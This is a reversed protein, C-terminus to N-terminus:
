KSWTYYTVVVQVSRIDFDAYASYRDAVELDAELRHHWLYTTTSSGRALSYTRATGPKVTVDLDKQNDTDGAEQLLSGSVFSRVNSQGYTELTIAGYRARAPLTFQYALTVVRPNCGPGNLDVYLGRAYSSLSSSIVPCGDLSNRANSYDAGDRTITMTHATLKKGSVHVTSLPGRRTNGVSDTVSFRWHYKGPSVIHGSRNTGNWTLWARGGPWRRSAIRRVLNGSTNTISLTLTGASNMRTKPTFTDRYKDPWPMFTTNNGVTATMTPPTTDVVVAHTSSGSVVAGNRAGTTAATIRYGGDAARTGRNTKGNWTWTHSGRALQGLRVPGRVVMGAHDRVTMAVTEADPLAVTVHTADKVGNGNPSFPSPSVAAISPKLPDSFVIVVNSMNGACRTGDNTCGVLYLDHTGDSLATGTYRFTHAASTIMAAPKDDISLQLERGRATARVTFGGLVHGWTTPSTIKPFGNSVTFRVYVTPDACLGDATCDVAYLSHEGDATGFSDYPVSATGDAVAAPASWSGFDVRYEVDAASSGFTFTLEGSKGAVTMTPATTPLAEGFAPTSMTAVLTAGLVSAALLAPLRNMSRGSPEAHKLCQRNALVRQSRDLDHEIGFDLV